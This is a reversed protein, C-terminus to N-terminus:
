SVKGTPSCFFEININRSVSVGNYTFKGGVDISYTRGGDILDPTYGTQRWTGKNARSTISNIGSFMQRGQSSNLTTDFSGTISITVQTGTITTTKSKAITTSSLVSFGNESKKNEGVVFELNAIDKVIEKFEKPSVWEHEKFKDLPLLELNADPYESNVEEVISSYQEYYSEKHHPTLELISGSVTNGLCFAIITVFSISLIKVINKM